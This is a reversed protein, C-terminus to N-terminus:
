AVKPLDPCRAACIGNLNTAQKRPCDAIILARNLAPVGTFSAPISDWMKKRISTQDIADMTVLM